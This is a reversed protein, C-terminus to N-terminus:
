SPGSRQGVERREALQSVRIGMLVFATGIAQMGLSLIQGSLLDLVTGALMQGSIILLITRSAGLHGFVWSSTAVFVAGIVGGLYYPVPVDKWSSLFNWEGLFFLMVLLLGFGVLHNWVSAAAAGLSRALTANIARSVGILIGNLFAYGIYLIM